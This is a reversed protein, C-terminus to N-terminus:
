RGTLKRLLCWYWCYVYWAYVTGYDISVRYKQRCVGNYLCCLCVGIGVICTGPMYLVMISALEINKDVSV